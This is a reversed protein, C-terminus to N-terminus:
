QIGQAALWDVFDRVQERLLESAARNESGTFVAPSVDLDDEVLPDYFATFVLNGGQRQVADDLRKVALPFNFDTVSSFERPGIWEMYDDESIYEIGIRRTDDLLDINLVQGADLDEVIRSKLEDGDRYHEMVLRPIVISPFAVNERTFTFGAVEMEERIIQIAEEESLFSPPSVVVCGTAGRGYGNMFLTAVRATGPTAPYDDFQTPVPTSGPLSTGKLVYAQDPSNEKAPSCSSLFILAAAAGVLHPSVKWALPMTEYLLAPREGVEVRTPYRPLSYRKVPKVEM